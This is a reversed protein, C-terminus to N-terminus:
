RSTLVYGKVCILYTRSVPMANQILGGHMCHHLIMAIARLFAFSFCSRCLLPDYNRDSIDDLITEDIVIAKTNPVIHVKMM